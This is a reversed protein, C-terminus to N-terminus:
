RSRSSRASSAARRGRRARRAPAVAVSFRDNDERSINWKEAILEASIGQPVLNPYRELMKPGFPM